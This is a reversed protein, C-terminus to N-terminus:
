EIIYYLIGLFIYACDILSLNKIQIMAFLINITKIKSFFFFAYVKFHEILNDENVRFIGECQFSNCNM